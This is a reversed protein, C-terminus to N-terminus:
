SNNELLVKRIEFKVYAYLLGSIAILVAILAGLVFGIAAMLLPTSRKSAFPPQPKDLIEVIPTLKQLRWSAEDKNNLLTEKQRM